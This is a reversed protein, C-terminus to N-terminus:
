RFSRFSGGGCPSYLGSCFAAYVITSKTNVGNITMVPNASEGPISAIAFGSVTSRPPRCNARNHCKRKINASIPKTSVCTVRTRLVPKMLLMREISEPHYRSPFSWPAPIHSPPDEDRGPGRRRERPARADGVREVLVGRDVLREARGFCEVVHQDSRVAPRLGIAVGLDITIEADVAEVRWAVRTVAPEHASTERRVLQDDVTRDLARPRHCQTLQARHLGIGFRRAVVADLAPARDSRCRARDLDRHARASARASAARSCSRSTPRDSVLRPTAGDSRRRRLHTSPLCRNRITRRSKPIAQNLAAASKTASAGATPLTLAEACGAITGDPGGVGVQVGSARELMSESM